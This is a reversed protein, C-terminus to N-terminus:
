MRISRGKYIIYAVFRFYTYYKTMVQNYLTLTKKLLIVTSKWFLILFM